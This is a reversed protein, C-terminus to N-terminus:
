VRMHELNKAIKEAIVEQKNLFLLRNFEPMTVEISEGLDESPWIFTGQMKIHKSINFVPPKWAFTTIASRTKNCFAYIKGNMPNESLREFIISTFRNVSYGHVMGCVLRVPIDDFSEGQTNERLAMLWEEASKAKYLLTKLPEKRKRQGGFDHVWSYITGVPINLKRSIAGSEEGNWHLEMATDFVSREHEWVRSTNNEYQRKYTAKSGCQRSCYRHRQKKPHVIYSKGCYECKKSKEAM